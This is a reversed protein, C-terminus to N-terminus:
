RRRRSTRSGTTSRRRRFRRAAAVAAAGAVGGSRYADAPKFLVAADTGKVSKLGEVVPVDDLIWFGRGETAVILNHRYFKLDMIPVRPLNLQFSQWHAGDDYSIYMGYETGAVLLGPMDPDERVVRTAHGAPIGNTGDAIRKWTKGYDNTLYVYPTFDALMYRYATM